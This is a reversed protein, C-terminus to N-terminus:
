KGRYKGAGDTLARSAKWMVGQESAEWMMGKSVGRM